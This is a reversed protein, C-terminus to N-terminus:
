RTDKTLLRNSVRSNMFAEAFDKGSVEASLQSADSPVEARQPSARAPPPACANRHSPAAHAQAACPRAAERQVTSWSVVVGARALADRIVEISYGKAHLERIRDAYARVKRSRRGPSDAPQIELPGPASKGQSSLNGNASDPRRSSPASAVENM